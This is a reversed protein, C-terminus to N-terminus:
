NLNNRYGLGYTVMYGMRVRLMIGKNIEIKNIRTRSPDTKEWAGHVHRYYLICGGANQYLCKRRVAPMKVQFM